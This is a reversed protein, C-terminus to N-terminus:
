WSLLFTAEKSRPFCHILGRRSHTPLVTHRGIIPFLRGKSEYVQRAAVILDRSM